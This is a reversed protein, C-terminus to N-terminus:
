DSTLAAPAHLRRPGTQRRICAVFVLPAFDGGSSRSDCPQKRACVSLALEGCYLVCSRARSEFAFVPPDTLVSAPIELVRLANQRRKVAKVGEEGLIPPLRRM